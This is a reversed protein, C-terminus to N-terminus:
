WGELVVDKGGALILQHRVALVSTWGRVQESRDGRLHPQHVPHEAGRGLGVQRDESAFPERRLDNRALDGQQSLHRWPSRLEKAAAGQPAIPERSGEGRAAAFGHLKAKEVS